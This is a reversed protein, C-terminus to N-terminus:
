LFRTLQVVLMYNVESKTGIPATSSGSSGSLASFSLDVSNRPNRWGAPGNIRSVLVSVSVVCPLVSNLLLSNIVFHAECGCIYFM